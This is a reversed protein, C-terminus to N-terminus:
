YFQTDWALIATAPAAMTKDLNGPSLAPRLKEKGEATRVFVIRMPQTNMTTPAWKLVDYLARLQEDTVPGPLFGNQTRANRFLVDL